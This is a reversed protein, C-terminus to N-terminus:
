LIGKTVFIRILYLVALVGVAIWREKKFYQLKDSVAQNYLSIKGFLGESAKDSSDNLEDKFYTSM